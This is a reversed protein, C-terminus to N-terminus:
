RLIAGVVGVAALPWGIPRRLAALAFGALALLSPAVWAKTVLSGTLAGVITSHQRVALAPLAAVLNIAGLIAGALGLVAAHRAADVFVGAEAPEGARSVRRIVGYRFGIAGIALFAGAFEIYHLLPDQWQLLPENEM